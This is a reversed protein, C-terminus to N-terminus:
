GNRWKGFEVAVFGITLVAWLLAFPAYTILIAQTTM